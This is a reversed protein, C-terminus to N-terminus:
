KLIDSSIFLLKGKKDRDLKQLYYNLGTTIGDEFAYTGLLGYWYPLDYSLAHSVLYPDISKASAVAQAYLRVSDYAIAAPVDLKIEPFRAQFKKSFKEYQYGQNRLSVIRTGMGEDTVGEKFSPADLSSVGIFPKLITLSRAYKIVKAGLEPGTVLVIADVSSDQLASLATEMRISGTADEDEHLGPLVAIAGAVQIGADSFDNKLLEVIQENHRTSEYVFYIRDWKHTGIKEAMAKTMVEDRPLLQFYLNKASWKVIPETTGGGLFLIGNDEYALMASM